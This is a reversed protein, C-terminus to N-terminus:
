STGGSDSPAKPPAHQLPKHETEFARRFARRARALKSRIATPTSKEQGAIHDVSLEDFYKAVLVTEYEEPLAALTARVASAVEVTALAEPPTAHRHDLWEIIQSHLLATTNDGPECRHQRRFHLAVHNRAIGYLWNALSGRVADYQRASRAAALFTEQVVDAVDGSDPLMRRAVYRWVPRSYAEYLARWAEEKGETLGRAIWREREQDMGNGGCRAVDNNVNRSSSQAELGFHTAFEM